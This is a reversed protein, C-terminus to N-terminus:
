VFLLLPSSSFTSGEFRRRKKEEHELSKKEEHEL